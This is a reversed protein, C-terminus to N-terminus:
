SIWTLLIFDSFYMFNRMWRYTIHSIVNLIVWIEFDLQIEHIIAHHTGFDVDADYFRSLVHFEADLPINYSFDFIKMFDVDAFFDVDDFDVDDNYRRHLRHSYPGTTM